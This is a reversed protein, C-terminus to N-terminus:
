CLTYCSIILSTIFQIRFHCYWLQETAATCLDQCEPQIRSPISTVGTILVTGGIMGLVYKM